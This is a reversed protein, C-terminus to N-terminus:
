GNNRWCLKPQIDLHDLLGIGKDVGTGDLLRRAFGRQEAFHKIAAAM